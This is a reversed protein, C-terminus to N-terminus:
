NILAQNVLQYFIIQLILSEVVRKGNNIEKSFYKLILLDDGSILGDLEREKAAFLYFSSKSYSVYKFPRLSGM